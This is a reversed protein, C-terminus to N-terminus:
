YVVINWCNALRTGVDHQAPSDPGVAQRLSRPVRRARRRQPRQHKRRAGLRTVISCRTNCYCYFSLITGGSVTKGQRTEVAVLSPVTELAPLMAHDVTGALIAAIDDDFPPDESIETFPSCM